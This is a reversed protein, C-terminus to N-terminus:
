RLSTQSVYAMLMQRYVMKPAVGIAAYRITVICEIMFIIKLLNKNYLLNRGARGQPVVPRSQM